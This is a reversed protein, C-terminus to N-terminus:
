PPTVNTRQGTDSDDIAHGLDAAEASLRDGHDIDGDLLALAAQRIRLLYDHRPQRLAQTVHQYVTLTARFTALGDEPM